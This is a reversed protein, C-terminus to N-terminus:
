SPRGSFNSVFKHKLRKLINKRITRYYEPSFLIKLINEIKIIIIEYLRQTLSQSRGLLRLELGLLTLFKRKEVIDLGGIPDVWAGIWHTDPTREGPTFHDPHSASWEGGVLASNL